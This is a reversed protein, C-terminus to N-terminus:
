YGADIVTSEYALISVQNDHFVAGRGMDSDREAVTNNVGMGWWGKTTAAVGRRVDPAVTLIATFTGRDNGVVVKAGDALGDRAADEPHITVTPESTRSRTKDTGAFVSNIHWDSAVAVLDYGINAGGNAPGSGAEVPPLYGPVLDQNEAEAKESAFEFRGSPTPFRKSFPVYPQETGPLRAWGTARLSDITIGAAAYAPTDILAAALELDTAFLAPETLGMASALRRFIETHALCEGAPAVAPQNLNIYLHSFSDNVELQEHQMTSPLVIDAYDTTETHFVDVAVTFLDDRLLGARVAEVDPNSVVPNAGYIFLAEVPPDIGRLNAALNTTALYRPRTGLAAGGAVATNFGYPGSTSYV